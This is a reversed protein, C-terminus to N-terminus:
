KNTNAPSFPLAVLSAAAERAAQVFALVRAPDKKGPSSEVGSVVDVGWPRLIRIAEQVNDPSLGGAVIMRLNPPAELFCSKAQNWDFSAGTGGVAKTSFSDVLVADHSPDFGYELFAPQSAYNAIEEQAGSDKTVGWRLVPIIKLTQGHRTFYERLQLRLDNQKVQDPVHLQVGNLRCGEVTAVIEPLAADVFVGYTDIGPPLKDTIGRVQVESVQRPSRAFVFGLADAGADVALQADELNTNGCIKIWM